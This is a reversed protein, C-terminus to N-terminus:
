IIILYCRVCNSALVILFVWIIMGTFGYWVIEEFGFLILFLFPFCLRCDEYMHEPLFSCLSLGFSLRLCTQSQAVANIYIVTKFWVCVQWSISISFFSILLRRFNGLHLRFELLFSWVSRNFVSFYNAEFYRMCLFNFETLHSNELFLMTITLVIMILSPKLSNWDVFQVYITLCLLWSWPVELQGFNFGCLRQNWFYSEYTCLCSSSWFNHILGFKSRSKLATQPLFNFALM